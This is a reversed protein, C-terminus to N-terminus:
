RIVLNKAHGNADFVQIGSDGASNVFIKFRYKGAADFM